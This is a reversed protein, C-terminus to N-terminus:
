KHHTSVDVVNMLWIVHGALLIEAVLGPTVFISVSCM